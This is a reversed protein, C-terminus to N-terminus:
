SIMLEMTKSVPLTLDSSKSGDPLIIYGQDEPGRDLYDEDSEKKSLAKGLSSLGFVGIYGNDWTSHIYDSFLPLRSQLLDAPSMGEQVDSLEDWCSLVVTLSPKTVKELTRIGNAYLFFQLLEVFTAQDSWLSEKPKEQLECYTMETIPRSLIDDYFRSRDLRIFFLWGDSEVLRERWTRSLRRHEIIQSIQEGSYDPWILDVNGKGPAQIPLTVKHYVGMATHNATLGQGLRDLVEEFPSINSPAERMRLQCDRQRLRGLLQGGYHTKGTAPGGIVLLSRVTETM